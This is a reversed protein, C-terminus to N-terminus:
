LINEIGRLITQCEEGIVQQSKEAEIVNKQSKLTDKYNLFNNLFIFYLKPDVGVELWSSTLAVPNVRWM